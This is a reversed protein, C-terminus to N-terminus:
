HVLYRNRFALRWSEIAPVTEPHLSVVPDLALPPVALGAAEARSLRAREKRTCLLGAGPHAALAAKLAKLPLPAHNRGEVVAVPFIGVRALDRLFPANDGLACLAIWPRDRELGPPLDLRRFFPHVIGPIERTVEAADAWPGELRLDARLRASWIERYPGAPLLDFLGPCEGPATLLLRFAGALRPDQFGDDSLILDFPGGARFEPAHLARWARARDRTAFVRAGSGDRLMVAEESTRRWDDGPRVECLDGGPGGRGPGGPGLRYTLIAVRLGRAQFARALELTVSTKGSGGAKLAGVVVLPIAPRFGRLAGLRMGLRHVRTL